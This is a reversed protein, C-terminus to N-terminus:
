ADSRHDRNTRFTIARSGLDAREPLEPRSLSDGAAIKAWYGRPPAPIDSRRCVKALGVDSIGFREALTTTPESWVLEYLDRRSIRHVRPLRTTETADGDESSGEDTNEPSASTSVKRRAAVVFTARAYGSGPIRLTTSAALPARQVGLVAVSSVGPRQSTAIQMRRVCNQSKLYTRATTRSFPRPHPPLPDFPRISAFDPLGAADQFEFRDARASGRVHRRLKQLSWVQHWPPSPPPMM